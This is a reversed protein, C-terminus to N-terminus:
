KPDRQVPEPPSEQAAAPAPESGTADPELETAPAGSETPSAPSPEDLRPMEVKMSERLKDAEVEDEITRKFENSAKRFEAMMRGMSKGIDPLKKPGFVILAVVLILFLEPGGLTGFMSRIKDGFAPAGESAQVGFTSLFGKIRRCNPMDARRQTAKATGSSATVVAAGRRASMGTTSSSPTTWATVAPWTTRAMSRASASFAGRSTRRSSVGPPSSVEIRWITSLISFQRVGTATNTPGEPARAAEAPNTIRTAASTAAIAGPVFVPAAWGTEPIPGISSTIDFFTM